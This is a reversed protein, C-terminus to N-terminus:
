ENEDEEMPPDEEDIAALFERLLAKKKDLFSDLKAIFNKQHHILTKIEKIREKKCFYISELDRRYLNKDEVLANQLAFAMDELSVLSVKPDLLSETETTLATSEALLFKTLANEEYKAALNKKLNHIDREFTNERQYHYRRARCKGEETQSCSFTCTRKTVDYDCSNNETSM